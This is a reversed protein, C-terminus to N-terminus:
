SALLGPLPGHSDQGWGQVDAGMARALAALLDGHRHYGFSLLRGTRIAGAGGGAVVFPMNDHLHTNGDCVETCLLVASYDLMTGDAEPRKALEGLLYAFQEVFWIRQLLYKRYEKKGDDHAPGYHSAQHSRMVFNPEYMPTGPFRSMELESTHYSAQLVGVRTLGCGMASVMVDIQARLIDPFRADDYLDIGSVGSLDPGDGCLEGDGGDGGDGGGGGGGGGGGVVRREVERLAELHLDLKSRERGGLRAKLADLDQKAVDIVSGARQGSAALRPSGFLRGFARVPDDEPAVSTQASVYSIFRDSSHGPKAAQAGLCLHRFPADAGVTNGLYQDVSMGNGHDVGTLLKKAGGPHNGTDTPGMSLGNLFVCQDRFPELPALQPSLSFSTESGSAHWLSPSGDASPGVVGDPFYFVILRRAAGFSSSASARRTLLRSFPLALGAGAALKLFGRRSTSM